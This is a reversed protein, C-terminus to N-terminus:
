ADTVTNQLIEECFLIHKVSIICSYKLIMQCFFCLYSGHWGGWGGFSLVEVKPNGCEGTTEKIVSKHLSVMGPLVSNLYVLWFPSAWLLQPVSFPFLYIFFFLCFAGFCLPSWPKTTHLQSLNTDERFFQHFSFDAFTLQEYFVLPCKNIPTVPVCETMFLISICWLGVGPIEGSKPSKPIAWGRNYTNM